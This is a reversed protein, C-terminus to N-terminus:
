CVFMPNVKCIQTTQMLMIIIDVRLLLCTTLFGNSLLEKISFRRVIKFHILYGDYIVLKGYALSGQHQMYKEIIKNKRRLFVASQEM